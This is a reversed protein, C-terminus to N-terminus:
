YTENEIITSAIETIKNKFQKVNSNNPLICTLILHFILYTLCPLYDFYDDFVM